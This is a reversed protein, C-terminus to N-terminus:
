DDHLDKLFGLFALGDIATTMTTETTCLSRPLRIRQPM